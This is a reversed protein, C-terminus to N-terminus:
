SFMMLMVPRHHILVRARYGLLTSLSGMLAELHFNGVHGVIAEHRLLELAYKWCHRQSHLFSPPPSFCGLFGPSWENAIGGRGLLAPGTHRAFISIMLPSYYDPFIRGEEYVVGGGKGDFLVPSPPLFNGLRQPDKEYGKREKTVMLLM